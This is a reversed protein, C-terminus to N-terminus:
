IIWRPTMDRVPHTGCKWILSRLSDCLTSNCNNCLLDASVCCNAYHTLTFWSFQCCEYYQRKLNSKKQRFGSSPSMDRLIYIIWFLSVSLIFNYVFFNSKPISYEATSDIKRHVLIYQVGTELHPDMHGPCTSYTVYQRVRIFFVIYELLSSWWCYANM